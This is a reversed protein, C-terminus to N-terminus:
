VSRVFRVSHADSLGRMDAIALAVLESHTLTLTVIHEKQSIQTFVDSIQYVVINDRNM